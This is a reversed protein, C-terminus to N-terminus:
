LVQALKAQFEPLRKAGILSSQLTQVWQLYVARTQTANTCRTIAELLTLRTYPQFVTNITNMMFNKAMEVEKATRTEAPPLRALFPDQDAADAAANAPAQPATKPTPRPPAQPPQAVAAVLGHELLQRLLSAVDQGTLLTTLESHSRKGDVLILLRRLMPGIGVKKTSIEEVGVPTKAFVCRELDLPSDLSIATTM